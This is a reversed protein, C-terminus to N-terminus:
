TAGFLFECVLSAMDPSPLADLLLLRYRQIFQEVRYQQCLPHFRKRLLTRNAWNIVRVDSLMAAYSADLIGLEASVACVGGFDKDDFKVFGWVGNRLTVFVKSIPANADWTIRLGFAAWNGSVLDVKLSLRTWELWSSRESVMPFTAVDESDTCEKDEEM